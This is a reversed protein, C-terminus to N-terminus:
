EDNSNFDLYRNTHTPKRYVMFKLRENESRIIQLDLLALNNNNELQYEFQISSNIFNFLDPYFYKPIVAIIDDVYRRM